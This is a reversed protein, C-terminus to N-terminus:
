HIAALALGLALLFGFAAHLQATQLDIMAIARQLGTSALESARINRVLLPLSLVPLLALPPLARVAVAMALAMYAGLVLGVYGLHAWRRGFMISPTMIGARADDSIDRWENGHLIAAVLLGVPISVAFTQADFSVSVVYYAGSVMLPGMLLFVLPVGLAHFKYQFPPATYGLGGILGLSGLVIVPWGRFLILAVGIATATDFALWALVFAEKESLRGKLLAHSARPTTISDIGQRVDYIENIVNTGVQLLVGGALALVFLWWTFAGNILALAGGAAVPVSSATLSFPRSIEFWAGTHRALRQGWSLQDRDLDAAAAMATAPTLVPM